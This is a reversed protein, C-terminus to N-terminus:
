RGRIRHVYEVSDVGGTLNPISGFTAKPLSPDPTRDLIDTLETIAYPQGDRLYHVTGVVLVRCEVLSKIRATWSSDKPFTCRVDAGTVRDWVTFTRTGHVNIAELRGEVSGLATAGGRLIFDVMSDAMFSGGQVRRM